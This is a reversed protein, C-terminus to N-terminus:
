AGILGHTELAKIVANLAEIAQSLTGTSPDLDNKSATHSSVTWGTDRPGVVQSSAVYLNGDSLIGHSAAGITCFMSGGELQTQNGSSAGVILQCVDYTRNYKLQISQATASVNPTFDFQYPAFNLACGTGTAQDKYVLFGGTATLNMWGHNGTMYGDASVAVDFSRLAGPEALPNGFMAEFGGSEGLMVHAYNFGNAPDKVILGADTGNGRVTFPGSVKSLNRWLGAM